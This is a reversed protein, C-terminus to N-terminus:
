TASNQDREPLPTGSVLHEALLRLLDREPSTDRRWTSVAVPLGLANIARIRRTTADEKGNNGEFKLSILLARRVQQSPIMLGRIDYAPETMGLVGGKVWQRMHTAQRNASTTGDVRSLGRLTPLTVIRMTWIGRGVLQRLEDTATEVLQISQDDM